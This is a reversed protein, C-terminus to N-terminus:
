EWGNLKMVGDAIDDNVFDVQVIHPITRDVKPFYDSVLARNIMRANIGLAPAPGTTPDFPQLASRKFFEVIGDPNLLTISASELLKQTGDAKQKQLWILNREVVGQADRSIDYEYSSTTISDSRDCDLGEADKCCVQRDGRLLVAKGALNKLPETLINKSCDAVHGRLSRFCLSINETENRAWPQMIADVYAQIYGTDCKVILVESPYNELFDALVDLKPKMKGYGLGHVDIIRDDGKATPDRSYALRFDLYRVGMLLQDWLPDQQCTDILHIDMIQNTLDRLAITHGSHHTGLLFVDL